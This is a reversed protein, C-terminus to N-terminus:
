CTLQEGLNQNENKWGYDKWQEREVFIAVM